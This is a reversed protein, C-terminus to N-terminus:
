GWPLVYLIFSYMYWRSLLHSAVGMLRPKDHGRVFRWRKPTADNCWRSEGHHLVYRSFFMWFCQLVSSPLNCRHMTGRPSKMVWRLQQRRHLIAFRSLMSGWMRLSAEQLLQFYQLQRIWAHLAYTSSMSSTRTRTELQWRTLSASSLACWKKNVANAWRLVDTDAYSLKHLWPSELDPHM